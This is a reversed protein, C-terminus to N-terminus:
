IVGGTTHYIRFQFDRVAITDSAERFFDCLVAANVHKDVIGADIEVVFIASGIRFLSHVDVVRSHHIHTNVRASLM